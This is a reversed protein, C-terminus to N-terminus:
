EEDGIMKRANEVIKIMGDEYEQFEKLTAIAGDMYGEIYDDSKNSFDLSM